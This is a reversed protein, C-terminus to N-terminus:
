LGPGAVRLIGVTGGFDDLVVPMGSPAAWPGGDVRVNLRYLGPALPLILEWGGDDLRALPVAQWRTFDGMLEVRTSGPVWIRIRQREGLPRIEFAPGPPIPARRESQVGATRIPLSAQHDAIAPQTPRHSAIRVGLSLYRGAPLGQAYDAPYSGGAAVLALHAALWCTANVGAWVTGGAGAPRSWQRFGATAAVDLMGHSVTGALEADAFRLSDGLWTPTATVSATVEGRRLWAGADARRDPAWATGNWGRGLAAGIWVGERAGLWHLRARGLVDGASGGADRTSGAAELTMEGRVAGLPPTFASLTAAGQLSWGGGTFQAFGSGAAIRTSPSLWELSPALSVASVDASGDYGLRSGSGDLAATVQAHVPAAASAAFLALAAIALRM